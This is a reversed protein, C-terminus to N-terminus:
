DIRPGAALTINKCPLNSLIIGGTSLGGGVWPSKKAKQFYFLVQLTTHFVEITRGESYGGAENWIEKGRAM